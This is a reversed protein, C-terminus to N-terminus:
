TQHEGNPGKGPDPYTFIHAYEPNKVIKRPMAFRSDQILTQVPQDVAESFDKSRM